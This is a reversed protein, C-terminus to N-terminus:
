HATWNAGNCMALTKVAGGGVLNANYTPGNADTVYLVTGAAGANCTPLTAVTKASLQVGGPGVLVTGGAPNLYLSTAGAGNATQVRGYEKVGSQYVYGIMLRNAGTTPSVMIQGQDSGTGDTNSTTGGLFAAQNAYTGNFYLGYNHTGADLHGYTANSFSHLDSQSAATSGIGIADIFNSGAAAGAISIGYGIKNTGGGNAVYLGNYSTLDAGSNNTTDIEVSSGFQAQYGPKYITNFVGSWTNGAGADAVTQVFLPMKANQQGYAAWTFTCTGNTVSGSSPWVPAAGGSTCASGVQYIYNVSPVVVYANAAYATNIAYSPAFGTNSYTDIALGTESVTVDQATKFKILQQARQHDGTQYGVIPYYSIANTGAIYTGGQTSTLIGQLNILTGTPDPVTLTDVTSDSNTMTVDGPFTAVSKGSSNFSYQWPIPQQQACAPAFGWLAALAM